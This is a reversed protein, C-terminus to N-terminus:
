FTPPSNLTLDFDQPPGATKVVCANFAAPTTTDIYNVSRATTEFILTPASNANGADFLQWTLNSTGNTFGNLQMGGGDVRSMPGICVTSGKAITGFARKQEVTVGQASTVAFGAGVLASVLALVLVLRKM